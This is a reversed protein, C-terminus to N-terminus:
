FKRKSADIKTCYGSGTKKISGGYPTKPTSNSFVLLGSNRDIRINVILPFGPTSGQIENFLEWTSGTSKNEYRNIKSSTTAAALFESGHIEIFLDRGNEFIGVTANETSTERTTEYSSGSIMELKTELQCQLKIETASSAPNSISSAFLILWLRFTFFHKYDAITEASRSM